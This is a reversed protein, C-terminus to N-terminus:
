PSTRPEAHLERWQELGSLTGAAIEEALSRTYALEADRLAIAYELEVLFLRPLGQALVEALTARQEALEAELRACREELLAVAEEPPLGPLLSLGAEYQPYEKVPTRLLETLWDALEARGAETIRYVTREPRRGERVTELPEILGDRTLAEVVSYLSGYNLRISKHKARERLTTAIEYPHMSREELCALVALALPNSRRARPSM